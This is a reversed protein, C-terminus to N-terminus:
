QVHRESTLAIIAATIIAIGAIYWGTGISSWPM